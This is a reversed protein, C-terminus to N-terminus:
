HPLWVITAQTKYLIKDQARRYSHYRMDCITCDNNTLDLNSPLIGADFLQTRNFSINDFFLKGDREQVFSQVLPSIFDEQVQYCCVKGAPGFWVRIREADAGHDQVLQNVVRTGIGGLAGRWGAHVAAVLKKDPAYLVIPLCDATLVAIGVGQLGTVLFDGEHKRIDVGGAAPKDIVRGATGHVQHNIVLGDLGLRSALGCADLCFAEEDKHSHPFDAATGFFVQPEM